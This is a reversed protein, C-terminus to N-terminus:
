KALFSNIPLNHMKRTMHNFTHIVGNLKAAGHGLDDHYPTPSQRMQWDAGKALYLSANKGRRKEVAREIGKKGM